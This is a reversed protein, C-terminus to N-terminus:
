CSLTVNNGSSTPHACMTTTDSNCHVDNNLPRSEVCKPLPTSRYKFNERVGVGHPGKRLLIVHLNEHKNQATKIDKM